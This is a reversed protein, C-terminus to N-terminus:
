TSESLTKEDFVKLIKMERPFMKKCDSTLHQEQQRQQTKKKKKTAVCYPVSRDDFTNLVNFMIKKEDFKQLCTMNYLVLIGSTIFWTCLPTGSVQTEAM